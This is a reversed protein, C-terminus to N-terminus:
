RPSGQCKEKTKSCRLATARWPGMTVLGGGPLPASLPRCCGAADADLARPSRLLRRDSTTFGVIFWGWWGLHTSYLFISWGSPLDIPNGHTEWMQKPNEQVNSPNVAGIRFDLHKVRHGWRHACRFLYVKHTGPIGADYYRILNRYLGRCIVYICYCDIVYICHAILSSNEFQFVASQPPM